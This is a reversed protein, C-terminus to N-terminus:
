FQICVIPYVAVGEFDFVVSCRRTTAGNRGVTERGHAVCNGRSFAYLIRSVVYDGIRPQPHTNGTGQTDWGATDLFFRGERVEDVM